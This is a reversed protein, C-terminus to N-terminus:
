GGFLYLVILDQDNGYFRHKSEAPVFIITGKKVKYTADNIGIFGNGEIVFYVEDMSHAGQTDIQHAHLKLIGVDIVKTNLFSLFYDEQKNIRSVIEDLEFLKEM